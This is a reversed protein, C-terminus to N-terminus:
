NAEATALERCILSGCGVLRQGHSEGPLFVPIPQWERRWPAFRHRKRRRGNAPLKKVVLVAQSAGYWRIFITQNKIISSLSLLCISDEIKLSPLYVWYVYVCYAYVYICVYGKGIPCIFLANFCFILVESRLLDM